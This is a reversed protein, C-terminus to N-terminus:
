KPRTQPASIYCTPSIPTYGATKFLKHSAINDPHVHGFITDHPKLARGLKLAISAIGLGHKTPEIFISVESTDPENMNDFRLVGSPKRNHIILLLLKDPNSITDKVWKTHEDHSPVIQTRAYRRTELQSQWEFMIDTDDITALRFSIHHGNKTVPPDLLELATRLTGQGDCIHAASKSMRQLQKPNSALQMFAQKLRDQSLNEYRGLFVIAGAKDLATSIKHQNDALEIAITPLGLCCREWSSTGSAGIAADANAMLDAMKSVDVRIDVPHRHSSAKERVINLHPAGSGLVATIQIDIEISDLAQLVTETVNHPDTTGLAVFINQPGQKNHHRHALCQSRAAAFEPRLLAYEPGLLYRCGDPTHPRYDAEKRGLTQDLLIDCDLARDALDDIVLIKHAWSRLPTTWDAGLGYHDVVLWDVNTLAARLEKHGDDNASLELLNHGSSKLFPLTNFTPAKCAFWIEAGMEHLANALALCRMVHGGGIEPSADCRMIISPKHM